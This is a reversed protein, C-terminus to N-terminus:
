VNKVNTYTISSQYCHSTLYSIHSSFSLLKEIHIEIRVVDVTGIKAQFVRGFGGSGIEKAEAFHQTVREILSLRYFGVISGFGVDKASSTTASTSSM